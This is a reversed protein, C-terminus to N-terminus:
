RLLSFLSSVAQRRAMVRPVGDADNKYFLGHAYANVRCTEPRTTSPSPQPLHALLNSGEDVGGVVVNSQFPHSVYQIIHETTDYENHFHELREAWIQSTMEEAGSGILRKPYNITINSTYVQEILTKTLPLHHDFAFM